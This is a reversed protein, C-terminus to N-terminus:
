KPLCQFAPNDKGYNEARHQVLAQVSPKGYDSKYDALTSLSTWLGSLDPKGDVARPAPATLNPKGDATRPIGATPRQAWQAALPLSLQTMVILFIATKMLM